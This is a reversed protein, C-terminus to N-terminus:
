TRASRGAHVMDFARRRVLRESLANTKKCLAILFIMTIKKRQLTIILQELISPRYGARNWM